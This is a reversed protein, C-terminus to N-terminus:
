EQSRNFNISEDTRLEDIVLELLNIAEQREETEKSDNIDEILSLIQGIWEQNKSEKSM